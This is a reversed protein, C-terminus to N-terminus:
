QKRVNNMGIVVLGMGIIMLATYEDEWDLLYDFANVLIMLLGVGAM